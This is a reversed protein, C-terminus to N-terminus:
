GGARGYVHYMEDAFVRKLGVAAADEPPFDTVAYTILYDARTALHEALIADYIRKAVRM